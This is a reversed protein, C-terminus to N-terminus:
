ARAEGVVRDLAAATVRGMPEGDFLAAPACACLGLCFSPEVTVAGDATTGHWEVALDALLRQAMAVAGLAQCAEARCIKLVHRGAPERRFDHYFSIVGYVDARSLNLADAILPEAERPVCGFEAQLAHLIPLMAGDLAQHQAIVDRARETESWAVSIPRISELRTERSLKGM